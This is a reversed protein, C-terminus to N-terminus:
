TNLYSKSQVNSIQWDQNFLTKISIFAHMMKNSICHALLNDATFSVPTQQDLLIKAGGPTLCYAHTCDHYGAIQLHNSYKKPFLNAIQTHNWNLLGLKHQVHYALQKMKRKLPSITKNSYGLYLLNWNAPLEKIIFNFHAMNTFDVIVDDELILTKGYNNKIIDEYVKVHSCACGIQGPTMPKNYRSNTIALKENYVSERELAPIDLELKDQGFFFTYDLGELHSRIMEQRDAARKLTIVYIKDFYENLPQFLSHNNSQL